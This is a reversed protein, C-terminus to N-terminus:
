KLMEVNKLKGDADFTFKCNPQGTRLMIGFDGPYVNETIVVDPKPQENARQEDLIHANLNAQLGILSDNTGILRNKLSVLEAWLKEIERSNKIDIAESSMKEEKKPVEDAWRYECLIDWSPRAVGSWLRQGPYRCQVRRGTEAWEHIMEAYPNRNEGRKIIINDKLEQDRLYEGRQVCAKACSAPEGCCPVCDPSPAKEAEMRKSWEVCTRELHAAVDIAFQLLTEFGERTEPAKVKLSYEDM